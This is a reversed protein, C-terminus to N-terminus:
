RHCNRRVCDRWFMWPGLGNHVRRKLEAWLNKKNRNLNFSQSPWSLLKIRRDILWKQKIKPMHKPDGDMHKLHFSSGSKINSASVSKLHGPIEYLGHYRQLPFFHGVADCFKWYIKIVSM